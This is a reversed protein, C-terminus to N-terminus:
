RLEVPRMSAILSAFRPAPSLTEPSRANSVVHIRDTM